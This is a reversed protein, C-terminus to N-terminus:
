YNSQLNNVLGVNSDAGSMWAMANRINRTLLRTADEFIKMKRSKIQEEREPHLNEGEKEERASVSEIFEERNTRLRQQETSCYDGKSSDCDATSAFLVLICNAIILLFLCFWPSM